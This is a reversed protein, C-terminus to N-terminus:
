EHVELLYKVQEIMGRVAETDQLEVTHNIRRLGLGNITAKHRPLRGSVSRKLTVTLSKSKSKSKAM